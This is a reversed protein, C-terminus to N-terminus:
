NYLGRKSASTLPHLYYLIYLQYNYINYLIYENNM